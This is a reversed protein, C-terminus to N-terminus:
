FAESVTSVENGFGGSNTACPSRTRTTPKAVPFTLAVFLVNSSSQTKAMVTRFPLTVFMRSYTSVCASARAAVAVKRPEWLMEFINADTADKKEQSCYGSIIVAGGFPGIYAANEGAIGRFFLLEGTVPSHREAFRSMSLPHARAAVQRWQDAHIPAFAADVADKPESCWIGPRVQTSGFEDVYHAHPEFAAVHACTLISVGHREIFTGTGIEAAAMISVFPRTHFKMLDTVRDCLGAWRARAEEETL